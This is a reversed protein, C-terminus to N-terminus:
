TLCLILDDKALLIMKLFKLKPLPLYDKLKRRKGTALVAKSVNLEFTDTGSIFEGLVTLVLTYKGPKDFTTSFTKKGLAGSEIIKWTWASAEGTMDRFTIFEGTRMGSPITVVPNVTTMERKPLIYVEKISFCNESVTASVVYKREADYKHTAEAGNTKQGDGFDWTIEDPDDSLSTFKIIDGVRPNSPEMQIEFPDCSGSIINYGIISGAILIIIIAALFVRKDM